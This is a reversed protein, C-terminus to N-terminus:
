ETLPPLFLPPLRPVWLFRGGVLSWCGVWGVISDHQPEFASVFGHQTSSPAVPRRRACVGTAFFSAEVRVGRCRVQPCYWRRGARGEMGSGCRACLGRRAQQPVKPKPQQVVDDMVKDVLRFHHTQRSPSSVIYIVRPVALAPWRCPPTNSRRSPVPKWVNWSRLPPGRPLM